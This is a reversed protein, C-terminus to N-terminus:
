KVYGWPNVIKGGDRVEFHLHTGTSRGTSGMKGLADGRSVKAGSAVYMSSLHAYLTQLGNGHDVVIHCGYGGKSCTSTQVIGGEAAYVDPATRNAIDLAMHYWVPQQTLMGSTPFLLKGIGQKAIYQPAAPRPTVPKTTDEPMIGDPIILTQGVTLTFNELDSFDNFPFNVINQAETDYKKALSYITDGRKVTHVVGTVPPIKLSQGPKLVPNKGTLNNTWKVTDESVDFKKAISALTDGGQVIYEEVKDRPKESATTAMSMDEFGLDAVTESPADMSSLVEGTAVTPYYSSIYPAGLLAVIMLVVLSGNLFANQYKGRKVLLLDVLRGKLEEFTKGAYSIQKETYLRLHHFFLGIDSFFTRFYGSLNQKTKKM